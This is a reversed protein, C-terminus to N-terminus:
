KAELERALAAVTRKTLQDIKDEIEGPGEIVAVLKPHYFVAKLDGNMDRRWGVLVDKWGTKIEEVRDIFSLIVPLESFQPLVGIDWSASLWRYLTRYSKGFLPGAEEPSILGPGVYEALLEVVKLRLEATAESDLCEQVQRKIEENTM